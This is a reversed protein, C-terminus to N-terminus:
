LARSHIEFAGQREHVAEYFALRQPDGFLPTCEMRRFTTHTCCVGNSLFGLWPRELQWPMGSAKSLGDMILTKAAKQSPQESQCGEEYNGQTASSESQIRTARREM